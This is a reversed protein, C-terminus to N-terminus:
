CSEGGARRLEARYENLEAVGQKWYKQWLRVARTPSLKGARLLNMDMVHHHWTGVAVRAARVARDRQAIDRRCATIAAEDADGTGEPARCSRDWYVSSPWAGNCGAIKLRRRGFQM